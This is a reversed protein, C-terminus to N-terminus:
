ALAAQLKEQAGELIPDGHGFLVMEAPLDALKQASERVQDPHTSAIRPAVTVKRMHFFTDGCILIQREPQYLAINGPTHGPVHIVQLGGLAEVVDGDQLTRDVQCPEFNFILRESLGFLLRQLVGTYPLTSKRELYAVDDQHALVQAGSRRALEALAGVHDSHAHTVVITRVDSVTYGVEEIQAVIKEIEGPTGGDILTLGDEGVLLYVHAARLGEILYIDQAIQRM